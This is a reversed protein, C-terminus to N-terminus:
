RSRTSPSPSVEICSISTKENDVVVSDINRGLVTMVSTSYKNSSPKVLDVLRGKVGPFTRKLNQLTEKLKAEKESQHKDAGVQSLVGLAQALKENLETETQSDNTFDTWAIRM